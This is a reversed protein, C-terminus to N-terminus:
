QHFILYVTDQLATDNDVDSIFLML